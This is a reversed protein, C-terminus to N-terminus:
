RGLLRRSIEASPPESRSGILGWSKFRITKL